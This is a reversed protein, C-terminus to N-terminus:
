VFKIWHMKNERLIGKLRSYIDLSTKSEVDDV